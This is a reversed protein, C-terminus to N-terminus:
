TLYCSTTNHTKIVCKTRPSTTIVSRWTERNTTLWTEPPNVCQWKFNSKLKDKYRLKPWGAKRRGECLKWYLLQKPIHHHEMRILSMVPGTYSPKSWCQSLARLSQERVELNSIKDQLLISMISCHSRMHFQELQKTHRRYDLSDMKICTYLM